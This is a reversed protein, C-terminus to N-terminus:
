QLLGLVFKTLLAGVADFVKPYKMLVDTFKSLSGAKLQKEEQAQSLEHPLKALLDHDPGSISSILSKITELDSAIQISANNQSGLISNQVPGTVNFTIVQPQPQLTEEFYEIGARTLKLETFGCAPAIEEVFGALVLQDVMQIERQKEHMDESYMLGFSLDGTEQYHQYINTLMQQAPKLLKM